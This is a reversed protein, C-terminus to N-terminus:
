DELDAPRLKIDIKPPEFDDDDRLRQFTEFLGNAKGEELARDLGADTMDDVVDAFTSLRKEFERLINAPEFEPRGSLKRMMTLMPERQGRPTLALYLQLRQRQKLLRAHQRMKM